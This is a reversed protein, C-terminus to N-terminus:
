CRMDPRIGQCACLPQVLAQRSPCGISVVTSSIVIDLRTVPAAGTVRYFENWSAIELCALKAIAPKLWPDPESFSQIIIGIM